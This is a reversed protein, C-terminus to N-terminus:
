EAQSSTKESGSLAKKSTSAKCKNRLMKTAQKYRRVFRKIYEEPKNADKHSGSNYADAVDEITSAGRGFVRLNLYRVVYPLSISDHDLALPPGTYGLEVAVPYLIQFNSYSCCADEGWMDYLHKMFRFYRGGPAYAAEFRPVRNGATYKECWYLAWLLAEPNLEEPAKILPAHERILRSIM